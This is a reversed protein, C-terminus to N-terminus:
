DTYDQPTIGLLAAAIIYGHGFSKGFPAVQNVAWKLMDVNIYETTPPADFDLIQFNKGNKVQEKLNQFSKTNTILKYYLPVYVKKRAEIYAMYDNDFLSSVATRYRYRNKGKSDTYMIENTKTGAPHRHGKRESFGKKRWDRWDKTVNGKSDLHPKKMDPFIKSYQWYNEFLLATDNGILPWIEKNIPGLFMPSLEKVPYPGAKNMSGSTVNINKFHPPANPWPKGRGGLRAIAVEGKINLHNIVIKAIDPHGKKHKVAYKAAELFFQKIHYPLNDLINPDKTSCFNDIIDM